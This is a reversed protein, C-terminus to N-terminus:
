LDKAKTVIEKFEAKFGHEDRLNTSNIWELVQDYSSTGKYESDSLLMSFASISATFKMFDSSESFSKAEDFIEVKIPVSVVSEPLKYRFDVTFASLNESINGVPVIEYLATINQGAGIEGADETDDEFDETDLIRNEFGNLSYFNSEIKM